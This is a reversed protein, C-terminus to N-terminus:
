APGTEEVGGVEIGFTWVDIAPPRVGLTTLATCIQSRHDSGHDLTAALRMGVTAVRRFGDAPDVETVTADPDTSASLFTQWRAANREM